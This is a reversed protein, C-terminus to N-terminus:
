RNFNIQCKDTAVVKLTKNKSEGHIPNNCSTGKEYVWGCQCPTWCDCKGYPANCLTCRINSKILSDIPSAM